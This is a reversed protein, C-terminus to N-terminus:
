LTRFEVSKAFEFLIDPTRIEGCTNMHGDDREFLM